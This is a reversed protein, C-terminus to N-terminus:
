ANRRNKWGTWSSDCCGDLGPRPLRELAYVGVGVMGYLLEYHDPSPWDLLLGVLAEDLDKLEGRDRAHSLVQYLHAHAWAIGTFGECLSAGM